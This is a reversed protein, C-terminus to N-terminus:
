ECCQVEGIIMSMDMPCHEIAFTSMCHGKGFMNHPLLHCSAPHDEGGPVFKCVFECQNEAWLVLTVVLNTTM